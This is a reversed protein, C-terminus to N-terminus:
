TKAQMQAQKVNKSADTSSVGKKKIKIGTVFLKYLIPKECAAWAEDMPAVWRTKPLHLVIRQVGRVVVHLSNSPTDLVHTLALFIGLFCGRAFSHGKVWCKYPESTALEASHLVVAGCVLARAYAGCL